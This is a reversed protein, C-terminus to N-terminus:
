SHALVNRSRDVERQRAESRSAERLAAADTMARRQDLQGQLKGSGKNTNARLLREEAAAAARARADSNPDGGAGGAGAGPTTPSIPSSSSSGLTRPPGGVRRPKNNNVSAPVSVSTPRAPTTGLTRGPQSFPDSESSCLNGM